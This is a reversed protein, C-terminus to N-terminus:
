LRGVCEKITREATDDWSTEAGDDDSDDLDSPNPSSRLAKDLQKFDDFLLESRLGDYMCRCLFVVDGESLGGSSEEYALLCSNM